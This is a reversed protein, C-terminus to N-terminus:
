QRTISFTGNSVVTSGTCLVPSNPVSTSTFTGQITNADDSPDGTFVENFNFVCGGGAPQSYVFVFTVRPSASTLMGGSVVGPQM